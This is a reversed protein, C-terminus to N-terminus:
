ADINRPSKTFIFFRHYANDSVRYTKQLQAFVSLDKILKNLGYGRKNIEWYHEGDFVHEPQKGLTPRNLLLDYRGFKPIHFIYQWVPRADPLSIIVHRRSVRIMEAFAKLSAEYPLHELMQFACVVDFSADALPIATASGIHDPQLDPDLDLTEVELGFQRGVVKLMGPGPGIELVSEPKLKILEDLQHWLSSWRAKQMYRHFEYHSKDVQKM